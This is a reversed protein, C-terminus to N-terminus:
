VGSEPISPHCYFRWLPLREGKYDSPILVGLDEPNSKPILLDVGESGVTLENYQRSLMQSMHGIIEFRESPNVRNEPAAELGISILQEECIDSGLAGPWEGFNM